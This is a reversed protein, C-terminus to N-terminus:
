RTSSDSRGDRREVREVVGADRCGGRELGVIVLLVMSSSISLILVAM